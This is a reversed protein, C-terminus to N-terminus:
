GAVGAGTPPQPPNPPAATRRRWLWGTAGSVTVWFATSLAFSIVAIVQSEGRTPASGGYRAPVVYEQAVFVPLGAMLVLLREPVAMTRFGGFWRTAIITPQDSLLNEFGGGADRAARQEAIAQFETEEVPPTLVLFGAWAAVNIAVAGLM